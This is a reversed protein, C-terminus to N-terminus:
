ISTLKVVPAFTEDFNIGPMQPFGKAILHAKYWKISGDANCKIQFVLKSDIAKAGPPLSKVVLFTGMDWLSNLEKSMAEDWLHTDARQMAEAYTKPDHSGDSGISAAFAYTVKTFGAAKDQM